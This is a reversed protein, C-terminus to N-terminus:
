PRRFIIGAYGVFDSPIGGAIEHSNTVHTIDVEPRSGCAASCASRVAEAAGPCCANAHEQASNLADGEEGSTIAKIFRNDNEKAWALSSTGIGAPTFGYGPGYHTLDTSGVFVTKEKAHSFARGIEMGLSVALRTPPMGIAILRANPWAAAAFGLVLEIGNDRRYRRDTEEAFDHLGAIREIGERDIEMPRVPNNWADCRLLTARDRMTLHGGFIIVREIRPSALPAFASWATRGSYLWGAHPAIVGSGPIPERSPLNKEFERIIKRCASGSEPYWTGAFDAPRM